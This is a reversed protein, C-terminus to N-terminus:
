APSERKPKRFSPSTSRSWRSAATACRTRPVPNGAALILRDGARLCNAAAPEDVALPEVDAFQTPDIADPDYLLVPDGRTM